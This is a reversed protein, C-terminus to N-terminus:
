RSVGNKVNCLLDYTSSETFNQEYEESKKEM